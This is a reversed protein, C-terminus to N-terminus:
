VCFDQFIPWTLVPTLNHAPDSLEGEDENGLSFIDNSASDEFLMAANIADSLYLDKEFRREDM